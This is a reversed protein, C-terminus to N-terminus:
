ADGGIPQMITELEDLDVKILHPGVRFGRLYGAAIWRRITRSSVDCYAAADNISSLRLQSKNKPV